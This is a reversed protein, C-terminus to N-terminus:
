EEEMKLLPNPCDYWETAYISVEPICPRSDDYEVIGHNIVIAGEFDMGREEYSLMIVAEPYKEGLVHIVPEPPSWATNFTIEFANYHHNISISSDSANWKTGWNIPNWSYWFTPDDKIEDQSTTYENRYAPTDPPCVIKEFDLNINGEDTIDNLIEEYNDAKIVLKNECWNPM